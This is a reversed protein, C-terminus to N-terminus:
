RLSSSFFLCFDLNEIKGSKSRWRDFINSEGFEENQCHLDMSLDAEDLNEPQLPGKFGNKNDSNHLKNIAM